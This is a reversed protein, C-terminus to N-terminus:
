GRQLIGTLIAEAMPAPMRPLDEKLKLLENIVAYRKKGMKLVPGIVRKLLEGTPEGVGAARRIELALQARASGDLEEALFASVKLLARHLEPDLVLEAGDDQVVGRQLDLRPGAAQRPTATAPQKPRPKQPRPKTRATVDAAARVDPVAELSPRAQIAPPPPPGGHPVELPTGPMFRSLDGLGTDAVAVAQPLRIQTGQTSPGSLAVVAPTDMKLLADLPVPGSGEGRGYEAAKKGSTSRAKPPPASLASLDLPPIDPLLIEPMAPLPVEIPGESAPASPARATARSPLPRAEPEAEFGARRQRASRRSDDADEHDDTPTRGRARARAERAPRAAGRSRGQEILSAQGSDPSLLCGHVAVQAPVVASSRLMRVTDLVGATPSSPGHLLEQLLDREPSGPPLGADHVAQRVQARAPPCLPDRELGVVLVERCGHMHIALAVSRLLAREEGGSWVGPLQIVVAEGPRLGFAQELGATLLPSSPALLLLPGEASLSPRDFGGSAVFERNRELYDEIAM